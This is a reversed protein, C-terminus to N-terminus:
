NNLTPQSPLFLVGPIMTSTAQYTFLEFKEESNRVYVPEEFLSHSRISLFTIAQSCGRWKSHCAFERALWSATLLSPISSIGREKVAGLKRTEKRTGIAHSKEGYGKFPSSVRLSSINYNKDNHSIIADDDYHNLGNWAQGDCDLPVLWTSHECQPRKSAWTHPIQWKSNTM